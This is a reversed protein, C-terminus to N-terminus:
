EHGGATLAETIHEYLVCWDEVAIYGEVKACAGWGDGNKDPIFEACNGCAQGPQALGATAAEVAEQLKVAKQTQLSDPKRAEGGQSDATRYAEPVTATALDDETMGEPVSPEPLSEYLVCWDHLGIYGEVKACAGFGDGNKDPIFESCNGCATGPKHSAIETAEGYESFKVDEKPSLSDPKRKEGGLSIATRYAEPVPGSEFEEQSVGEPLEEEHKEGEGESEGGGSTTEDGGSTTTADGGSPTATDEAGGGGDGDGQPTGTCGALGLAATGAATGTLRKLVTRRAIIERAAGGSDTRDRM